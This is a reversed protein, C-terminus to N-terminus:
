LLAGPCSQPHFSLRHHGGHWLNAEQKLWQLIDLPTNERFVRVQPFGNQKIWQSFRNEPHKEVALQAARLLTGGAVFEYITRGNVQVPVCVPTGRMAVMLGKALIKKLYKKM